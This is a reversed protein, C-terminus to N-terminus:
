RAALGSWGAPLAGIWGGLSALSGDASITFIAIQNTGGARVYLYKSDRSTALDAPATGAGVTATVGNADLRTLAGQHISFGSITGSGTNASYAYRGSNTVGIWCASTETTPVSGSIVSWGGNAAADYSSVASAGAAGGFAESVVLTGNQTFGFGFPTIGSAPTVVPASAVGNVVAYTSIANAAKETVVLAQGDPTFSIQAPGSASTSLPRTSGAISTLDGSPSITLGSINGTGGANLVYLVNQSITVSIPMTGGSSARDTLTLSGDGSVRYLSVDNSGANAVALWNGGESLVVGNANGLGAGTGTGGTPYSRAAALSGDASRDYALIANGAVQNSMTYVQGVTNSARDFSPSLPFQRSSDQDSCAALAATLLIARTIKM